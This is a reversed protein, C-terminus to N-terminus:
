IYIKLDKIFLLKQRLQNFATQKVNCNRFNLVVRELEKRQRVQEVVAHVGEDSVKNGSGILM